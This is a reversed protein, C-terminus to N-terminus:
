LSSARLSDCRQQQNPEAFALLAWRRTWLTWRSESTPLFESCEVELTLSISRVVSELSWEDDRRKAGGANTHNLVCRM